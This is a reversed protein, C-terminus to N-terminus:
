RVFPQLLEPRIRSPRRSAADLLVWQSRAQACLGDPGEIAVFRDFRAGQPEGVWTRAVASEGLHLPRRYDIEHRAVVWAWRAALGDPVRARWHATAVDQAWRLYVVNNVHGNDDIDAAAPTLPLEFVHRDPPPAFDRSM